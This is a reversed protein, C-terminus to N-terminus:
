CSEGWQSGHPEKRLVAYESRITSAASLEVNEKQREDFWHANHSSVPQLRHMVGCSLFLFRWSQVAEEKGAGNRM